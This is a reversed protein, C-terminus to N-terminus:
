HHEIGSQRGDQWNVAFDASSHIAWDNAAILVHVLFATRVTSILPAIM